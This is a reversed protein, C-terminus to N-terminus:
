YKNEKTHFINFGQNLIRAGGDLIESADRASEHGKRHAHLVRIM